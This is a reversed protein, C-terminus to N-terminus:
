HTRLLQEAAHLIRVLREIGERMLQTVPTEALRTNWQPLELQSLPPPQTLAAFDTVAIPSWGWAPVLGPDTGAAFRSHHPRGHPVVVPVVGVHAQVHRLTRLGRCTLDYEPLSALWTDSKPLSPAGSRSAKWQEKLVQLTSEYSMLFASALDGVFTSCGRVPRAVHVLWDFHDMRRGVESAKMWARLATGAPPHVLLPELEDFAILPVSDLQAVHSPLPM